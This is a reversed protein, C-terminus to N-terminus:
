YRFRWVLGIQRDISVIFSFIIAIPGYNTLNAPMAEHIPRAHVKTGTMDCARFTLPVVYNPCGNLHVFKSVAIQYVM